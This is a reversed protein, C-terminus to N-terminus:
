YRLIVLISGFGPLETGAFSFVDAGTRLAEVLAENLVLREAETAEEAIFMQRVRGTKAAELAAKAEVVKDRIEGAKHLARGCLTRYERLAGAAAHKAIQELSSHEPNGHCEAAFLHPYKAAKRYLGIEERVGALFLPAGGLTNKLGKDVLEFFHRLYEAESDHDSSVGFRVGRMGGVSPGGSSRGEMTHDPKDFAGAAELSAPVGAPLPMETCRGGVYHFLRLHNQSLGLIFFDQPALANALQALLCFHDGVTVQERVGPTEYAAEYGPACFLTMAPGGRDAPLTAILNELAAATLAAEKPRDLKRLEELATHTM